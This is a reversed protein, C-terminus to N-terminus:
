IMCRIPVPLIRHLISRLTLRHKVKRLQYSYMNSLSQILREVNIRYLKTCMFINITLLPWTKMHANVKQRVQKMWWESEWGFFKCYKNREFQRYTHIHLMEFIMSNSLTTDRQLLPATKKLWLIRWVQFM